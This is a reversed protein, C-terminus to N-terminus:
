QASSGNGFACYPGHHISRGPINFLDQLDAEWHERRTEGGKIRGTSLLDDLMAGRQSAPVGTDSGAIPDHAVDHTHYHNREFEDLLHHHERQRLVGQLGGHAILKEAALLDPHDEAAMADKLASLRRSANTSSPFVADRQTVLWDSTEGNPLHLGCHRHRGQWGADVDVVFDLSATFRQEEDIPGGRVVCGPPRLHGGVAVLVGYDRVVRPAGSSRAMWLIDTGVRHSNQGVICGCKEAVQIDLLGVNGPM